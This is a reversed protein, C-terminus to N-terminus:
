TRDSAILAEFIDAVVMIRTPVSMQDKTLGCPYGTGDIKEHHGGAYGPVRQLERPWPLSDIM